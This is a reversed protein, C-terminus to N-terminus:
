YVPVTTSGVVGYTADGLVWATPVFVPSLQLTVVWEGSEATVQHSIKEVYFDSSKTFASRRSVTIRQGFELSLVVPWLAPNAAPKLVLTSIRTVPTGYRQLYFVGAQQVDFDSTVQVTQTLIRQGYNGKAVPNIMPTVTNNGPRTLNAQTFVYTPDHDTAYDSYPYEVPSAAAPNEGLVWLRTQNLYRASRDEVVVVGSASAYVLGRETVSMEQLVDLVFRGDYGYDQALASEGPSISQAGGWYTNLIRTARAGSMEGLYGMGRQYHALRRVNSLVGPYVALRGTSVQAQPAGFQATAEMYVTNFAVNSVSVVTTSGTQPLGDQGLNLSTGLVTMFFYHWQGDPFLAKSTPRQFVYNTGDPNYLLGINAIQLVGGIAPIGFNQGRPSGAPVREITGIQFAGDVIRAWCEWTFGVAGPNLSLYGGTVVLETVSTPANNTPPDTSNQATIAVANTGDPHSDGGWNISGNPSVVYVPYAGSGLGTGVEASNTPTGPNDLPYYLVPNDSAVEDDYSQSIATRSLIALPDVAQLPRQARMGNMDFTTPFRETYGTFIPYFTPGAAQYPTLNSGFELQTADVYFTPTATGTGYIVVPELTDVTTWSLYIRQWTNQAAAATSTTVNGLADTVQMRVTAGGTPRVWASMTYTIGPATRFTNRMGQGAGAASQTVLLSKTGAVAQASSLALTTSGGAPVWLGATAEFSSDYSTSVLPNIINGSGPQNPWMAWVWIARYPTVDNAGANFPSGANDPNLLELPDPLQLTATGAQVTDLEYARGRDTSWNRVFLRRYVANISKRTTLPTSPPGNQFDIEFGCLPWNPNALIAPFGAGVVLGSASDVAGAIDSATRFFAQATRTAADVAPASDAVARVVTQARTAADTAVASDSATRSGVQSARAAVDVAPASDSATRTFTQAARTAVDVAPASDAAARRYIITAKDTAPASDSASRAFVQGGRTAVDTAPASDFVGRGLAQYGITDIAPASDSATRSMVRAARTAVDTAPASDSATRTLLQAGRTAVDTAPANDTATRALSAVSPIPPRATIPRLPFSRGFRAM